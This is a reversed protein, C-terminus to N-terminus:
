FPVGSGLLRDATAVDKRFRVNVTLSLNFAPFRHGLMWHWRWPGLKNNRDVEAILETPRRKKYKVLFLRRDTAVIIRDIVEARAAPIVAQITEGPELYQEAQERLRERVGMAAWNYSHRPLSAIRQEGGTKPERLKM